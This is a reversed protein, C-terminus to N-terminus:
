TRGGSNIWSVMDKLLKKKSESLTKFRKEEMLKEYLKARRVKVTKMTHYLALRQSPTQVKDLIQSHVYRWTEQKSDVVQM